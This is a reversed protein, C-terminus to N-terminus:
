WASIAQFIHRASPGYGMVAKGHCPAMRSKCTPLALPPALMQCKAINEAAQARGRHTFRPGAGGHRCPRPFVSPTRGQQNTARVRLHRLFCRAGRDEQRGACHFVAPDTM